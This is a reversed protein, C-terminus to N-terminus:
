PTPGAGLMGFLSAVTAVVALIFLCRWVFLGASM